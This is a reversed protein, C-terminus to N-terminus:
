MLSSFDKCLIENTASFIINDVYIQVMIFENSYDKRFLTTDV